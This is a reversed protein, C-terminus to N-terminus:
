HSKIINKFYKKYLKIAKIKSLYLLRHCRYDDIINSHTHCETHITIKLHSILNHCKENYKNFIQM